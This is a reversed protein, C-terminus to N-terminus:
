FALDFYVFGGGLTTTRRWLALDANKIEGNDLITVGAKEDAGGIGDYELSVITVWHWRDLNEEGGNCLNLFAVPLNAALAAEIFSVAEALTEKIPTGQILANEGSAPADPRVDAAFMDLVGYRTVGIGKEAAYRLFPEYFLATTPIGRDTPTVYEWVEEMLALFAARTARGPKGGEAARGGSMYFLMNAAASPGCGARRQWETRYWNQDCGYRKEEKEEEERELATNIEFLNLNTLSLTKM